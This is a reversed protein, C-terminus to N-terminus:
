NKGIFSQDLADIYRRHVIRQDFEREMKSRASKGM